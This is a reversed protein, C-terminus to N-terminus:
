VKGGFAQVDRVELAAWVLLPWFGVSFVVEFLASQNRRLLLWTPSPSVERTQRVHVLFCLRPTEFQVVLSWDLASWTLLFDTLACVAVCSTGKEGDKHQCDSDGTKWHALLGSHQCDELRSAWYREKFGQKLTSANIKSYGCWGSPVLLLWTVKCDTLSAAILVQWFLLKDM